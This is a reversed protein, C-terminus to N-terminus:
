NNKKSFCSLMREYEIISENYNDIVLNILSKVRKINKSQSSLEEIELLLDKSKLGMITFSSKLFHSVEKILTFDEENSAKKLTTIKKKSETLFVSIMEIYLDTDDSLNRNLFDLDVIESHFCNNKLM